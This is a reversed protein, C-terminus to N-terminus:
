ELDCTEEDLEIEITYHSFHYNKLLDKIQKKVSLMEEYSNIKGLKVHATFVHQEGELSWVHMHHITLVKDLSLIDNKIKQAEIQEPVGQLFIEFTEKLRKVVNYLIFLTIAISLAPDLYHIDKFTLVIAM